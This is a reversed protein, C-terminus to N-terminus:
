NGKMVSKYIKMYKTHYDHFLKGPNKQKQKKAKRNKKLDHSM